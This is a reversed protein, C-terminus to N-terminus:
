SLLMDATTIFWNKANYYFDRDLSKTYCTTMLLDAAEPLRDKKVFRLSSLIRETYDDSVHFKIENVGEKEFFEIAKLILAKTVAEDKIDFLDILLGLNKNRHDRPKLILYGLVEHDREASFIVYPKGPEKLYRWNLTEADRVAIIPHPKSAREWLRNFREDFFNVEKISLGKPHCLGFSFWRRWLWHVPRLTCVYSPITKLPHSDMERAYYPVLRQTPFGYTVGDNKAIETFLKEVLSTLVFVSYWKKRHDPHIFIDGWYANALRAGVKLGSQITVFYGIPVDDLYAVLFLREQPRFSIFWEWYAKGLDMLGHAVLLDLDNNEFARIKIDM